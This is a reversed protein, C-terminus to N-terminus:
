CAWREPIWVPHYYGTTYPRPEYHGEIWTWEPSYHSPVWANYWSTQQVWQYTWQGPVLCNRQPAVFVPTPVIILRRPGAIRRPDKAAPPQVVTFRREGFVELGRDQVVGGGVTIRVGGAQAPAAWALTLVLVLVLALVVGNM